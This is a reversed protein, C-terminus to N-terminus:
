GLTYIGYYRLKPKGGPERKPTGKLKIEGRLRIERRRGALGQAREFKIEGRVIRELDHYLPAAKERGQFSIALGHVLESNLSRMDREAFKVIEHHLSEPLRITIRVEKERVKVM